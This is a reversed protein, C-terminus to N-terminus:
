KSLTIKIIRYMGFGTGGTFILCVIGGFLDGEFLMAVCLFLFLLFLPGILIIAFFLAVFRLFLEELKVSSYWPANLYAEYATRERQRQRAWAAEMEGYTFQSNHFKTNARATSQTSATPATTRYTPAGGEKFDLLIEYAINANIFFHAAAPSPNVDPHYLKAKKRYAKKIEEATANSKLGLTNFHKRISM